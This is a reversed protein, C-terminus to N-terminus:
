GFVSLSTTNKQNKLNLEHLNYNLKLESEYLEMLHLFHLLLLLSSIGAGIGVSPGHLKWTHKNKLLM